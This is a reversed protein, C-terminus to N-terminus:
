TAAGEEGKLEDTISEGLALINAMATNGAPTIIVRAKPLVERATANTMIFKGGPKMVAAAMDEINKAEAEGEKIRKKKNANATTVINDASAKTEIVSASARGEALTIDKLKISVASAAEARATNVHRGANPSKAFATGIQIGWPRDESEPEQTASQSATQEKRKKEGVMIELEQKIVKNFSDAMFDAHGLTTPALYQRLISAVIDDARKRVEEIRDRGGEPSVTEIFQKITKEDTGKLFWEFVASWEGTLPANLSDSRIAEQTRPPLESFHVQKLDTLPVTNDFPDLNEDIYRKKNNFFDETVYFRAEQMGKHNIRYPLKKGPAAADNIRDINEPEDPLEFQKTTTPYIEAKEVGPILFHPGPLLNRDFRGFQFVAAVYGTQITTFSLVLLLIAIFLMLSGLVIQYNPM